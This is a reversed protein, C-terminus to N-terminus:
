KPLFTLEIYKKSSADVKPDLDTRQPQLTNDPVHTRTKDETYQDTANAVRRGLEAMLAPDPISPWRSTRETSAVARATPQKGAQPVPLLADLIQNIPHEKKTKKDPPTWPTANESGHHGIKLFDLPQSLSDHQTEWMVNWAGNTRGAKVKGKYATKCEADGTFLLRQGHWELLPVV